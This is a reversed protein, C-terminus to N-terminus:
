SASPLPLPAAWATASIALLGTSSALSKSTKQFAGAHVTRTHQRAKQRNRDHGQHGDKGRSMCGLIHDADTLTTAELGFVAFAVLAVFAFVIAVAMAVWVIVASRMAGNRWLATFAPQAAVRQM